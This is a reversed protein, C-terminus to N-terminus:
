ARNDGHLTKKNRCCNGGGNEAAGASRQRRCIETRDIAFAMCAGAPVAVIPAVAAGIGAVVAEVSVVSVDVVIRKIIPRGSVRVVAATVPVSKLGSGGM